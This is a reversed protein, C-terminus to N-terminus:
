IDEHLAKVLTVPTSSVRYVEDSEQHEVYIRYVRSANPNHSEYSFEYNTYLLILIFSSIGVALGAINIFAYGKHRKINRLAIKLYNKFM